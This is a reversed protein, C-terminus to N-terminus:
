MFVTNSLWLLKVLQRFSYQRTDKHSLLIINFGIKLFNIQDPNIQSLIPVLLTIKYVFPSNQLKIFDHSIRPYSSVILNELLVKRRPVVNATNSYFLIIEM